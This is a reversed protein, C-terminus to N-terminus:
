GAAALSDGSTPMWRIRGSLRRLTRGERQQRRVGQRLADADWGLVACWFMLLSVDADGFFFREASLRDRETPGHLDVLALLLVQTALTALASRPREAERELPRPGDKILAPM